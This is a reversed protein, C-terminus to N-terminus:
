QLLTSRCRRIRELNALFVTRGMGTEGLSTEYRDTRADYKWSVGCSNSGSLSGDALITNQWLTGTALDTGSERVIGGGCGYEVYRNGSM